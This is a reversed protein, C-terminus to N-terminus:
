SNIFAMNELHALLNLLSLNSQDIIKKKKQPSTIM